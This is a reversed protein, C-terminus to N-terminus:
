SRRQKFQTPWMRHLALTIPLRKRINLIYPHPLLCDHTAEHDKAQPYQSFARFCLQTIRTTPSVARPPSEWWCDTMIFCDPRVWAEIAMTATYTASL